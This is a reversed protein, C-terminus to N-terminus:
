LKENPRGNTKDSLAKEVEDLVKVRLEIGIERLKREQYRYFLTSGIGWIFIGILVFIWVM